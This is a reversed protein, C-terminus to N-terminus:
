GDLLFHVLPVARELFHLHLGYPVDFAVRGQEVTDEAAGDATTAVDEDEVVLRVMSVADPRRRVIVLVVLPLVVALVVQFLRGDPNVTEVLNILVPADVKADVEVAM